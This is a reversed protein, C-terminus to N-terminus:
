WPVVGYKTGILHALTRNLTAVDIIEGNDLEFLFGTGWEAVFSGLDRPHDFSYRQSTYFEKPGMVGVHQSPDEGHILIVGQEPTARFGYHQLINRIDAVVRADTLNEITGTLVHRRPPSYVSRNHWIFKSEGDMEIRAIGHYLTPLFGCRRIALEKKFTKFDFDPFDGPCQQSNKSEPLTAIM